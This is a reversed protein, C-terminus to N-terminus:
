SNKNFFCQFKYNEGANNDWYTTNECVFCLAFEIRLTYDDMTGKDPIIICFGFYDYSYSPILHSENVLPVFADTQMASTPLHLTSQTAVNSHTSTPAHDSNVFMADLDHFTKWNNMSIRAFVRKNYALNRVKIICKIIKNEYDFIYDDLKVITDLQKRVSFLPILVLFPKSVVAATSEPEQENESEDQASFADVFTNNTIIRVTELNLGFSDAFRVIKKQTAAKSGFNKAGRVKISKRRGSTSTAERISRKEESMENKNRENAEAVKSKTASDKRKFTSADIHMHDLHALIFSSSPLSGYLSMANKKKILEKEVSSSSRNSCLNPQEIRMKLEELDCLFPESLALGLEFSYKNTYYKKYDKLLFNRLKPLFDQKYLTILESDNQVNMQRMSDKLFSDTAKVLMRLIQRNIERSNFIYVPSLARRRSRKSGEVYFDSDLSHGLKLKDKKNLNSAKLHNNEILFPKPHFDNWEFEDEDEYDDDDDENEDDYEDNIDREDNSTNKAENGCLFLPKKKMLQDNAASDNISVKASTNNTQNSTYDKSKKLIPRPQTKVLNKVNNTKNAGISKFEYSM